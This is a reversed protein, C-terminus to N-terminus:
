LTFLHFEIYVLVVINLINIPSRKMPFKRQYIRNNECFEAFNRGKKIARIKFCELFYHFKVLRKFSEFLENLKPLFPVFHGCRLM